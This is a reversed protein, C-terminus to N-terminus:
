NLGAGPNGSSVADLVNLLKDADESSTYYHPSIRIAWGAEKLSEDMPAWRKPILTANVKNDILAQFATEGEANETHIPIIPATGKGSDLVRWGNLDAITTRLHAAVTKIRSGIQDLGINLAYEAAAGFGLLVAYSFEWDEFRKANSATKYHTADLLEAGALDIFLPAYGADLVRDSVYLLGAGRPGRLFKRSTASFFDCGMKGVDIAGQGLSQCGDVLYSTNRRRCIEGIAYVDEVIGCSTNIHVSAVLKPKKANIIEDLKELDTVGADTIPARVLELGVREALSLFQIQNSAYESWAGVIVDGKAFPISSLARAFADTANATIAVNEKQAGIVAGLKDYAAGILTSQARAAEYGGIEAELRIHNTVAEVVPQPM